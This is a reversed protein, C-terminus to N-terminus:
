AEGEVITKCQISLDDVPTFEVGLDKFTMEMAKIELQMNKLVSYMYYQSNNLAKFRKVMRYYAPLQERAKKPTVIEHQCIQGSKNDSCIRSCTPNVCYGTPHEVISMNNNKIISRCEELSKYVEGGYIVDDHEEGGRKDVIRQGEIGALTKSNYIEFLQLAALEENTEQILEQLETDVELDMLSALESHNTYWQTMVANDHKYQQKLALIGVLKNRIMFVAFTRRFDHPSLKPLFGGVKLSGHWHPNLLNFEEVDQETAVIGHKKAFMAVARDLNGVVVEEKQHRIGLTLFASDLERYYTDKDPHSAYKERYHDRAYESMDYALELAMKVIPHTVWVEEKPTGGTQGKSTEGKLYPVTIDAYTVEDYSDKNFSMGETLRSGSFGFVTILCAIQIENVVMADGCPKFGEVPVNYGHNTRYWRPFNSQHKGSALYEDYLKNYEQYAESIAHRHPHYLEVIDAAERFLATGMREPLAINQKKVKKTKCCLTEALRKMDEIYRGSMMAAMSLVGQVTSYALKKSQLNNKFTHWVREDNLSSWDTGGLCCVVKKLGNLKYDLTDIALEASQKVIRHMVRQVEPTYAPDYQSTKFSLKKTGGMKVRKDATFDWTMNRLYSRPSGDANFTVAPNDDTPAPSLPLAPALVETM